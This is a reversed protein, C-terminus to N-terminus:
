RKVKFIKRKYWYLIKENEVEKTAGTVNFVAIERLLNIQKAEDHTIAVLVTDINGDDPTEVEIGDSNFSGLVKTKNLIKIITYGDYEDGLTLRENETLFTNAYENKLTAYVNILSNEKISYSMGHEASQIKIAVKEKGPEVEYIALNEKTDLQERIAIQGKYVKDKLYLGDIESFDQVIKTTALYSIPMNVKEFMDQTIKENSEVNEKFALCSITPEYDIMQKQIYTSIFFIILTILATLGLLTIKNKM